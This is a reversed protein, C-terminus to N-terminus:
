GVAGKPIVGVCWKNLIPEYGFIIEYNGIAVEPITNNYFIVDLGWDISIDETVNAYVLITNDINKDEPDAAVISCDTSITAKYINNTTLEYTDQALLSIFTSPAAGAGDKGDRGDKGDKGPEGQIGQPGPEGQPGQPGPTLEIESIANDVYEKTVFETSGGGSVGGIAELYAVRKDLDSWNKIETETYVYDAPKSRRKVEFCDYHKTYNKDYGYVNIRWDNQLLINPVNVVRKGDEEYVECVLSCDDTRNCFHVETISSDNVILKRDVDWQYFCSRGDTLQFM